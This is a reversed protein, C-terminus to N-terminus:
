ESVFRVCVVTPVEIRSGTWSLHGTKQNISFVYVDNSDQNAVVMFKGSPDIGFNRPINGKSSENKSYSLLGTEPDVSYIAISNHGRNSVYLFKGSPHLQIEATSNHSGDADQPLTSLTQIVSMDGTESDHKLVAVQSTMELNTYAFEGSTSFVLHRPGGGAPTSISTSSDEDLFASKPDLKYIKIKDLGLDAVYARQNSPDVNISHAHPEDQRGKHISSGVHQIASVPAGLGGISNIPYSTVSGGWYNALLLTRATKDLSVHAPGAGMSPQQNILSLSGDKRIFYASVADSKSGDKEEIESISYLLTGKPHIALFPSRSNTAALTAESLKGTEIDMTATYIGESGSGTYTGFYVRIESFLVSPMLSILILLPLLRKM